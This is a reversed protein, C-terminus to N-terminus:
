EQEGLAAMQGALGADGTSPPGIIAPLPQSVQARQQQEQAAVATARALNRETGTVPGFLAGIHPPPPVLFPFLPVIPTSTGTPATGPTATVSVVTGTATPTTATGTATAVVATGSSTPTATSTATATSTVTATPTLTATSTPTSTPTVTATPTMMPFELVCTVLITPTSGGPNDNLSFIFTAPTTCIYTITISTTEPVQDADGQVLCTDTLFVNNSTIVIQGDSNASLDAASDCTTSIIEGGGLSLAEISAATDGPGDDTWTATVQVTTGVEMMPSSAVISVVTAQAEKSGSGLVCVLGFAAALVFIGAFKFNRPM